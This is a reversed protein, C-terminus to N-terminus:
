AELGAAIALAKAKARGQYKFTIAPGNPRVVRANDRGYNSGVGVTCWAVATGGKGTYTYRLAVLLGDDRYSHEREVTVGQRKCAAAYRKFEAAEDELYARQAILWAPVEGAEDADDDAPATTDADAEATEAAARMAQAAKGLIGAALIRGAAEGELVAAEEANGEARAVDAFKDAEETIKAIHGELTDAAKAAGDADLGDGLLATAIDAALRLAPASWLAEVATAELRAAREAAKFDNPAKDATARAAARYAHAEELKGLRLRTLKGRAENLTMEAEQLTTM